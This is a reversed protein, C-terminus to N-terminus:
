KNVSSVGAEGVENLFADGFHPENNAGHDPKWGGQNAKGNCVVVRKTM